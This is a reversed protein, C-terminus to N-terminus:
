LREILNIRGVDMLIGDTYVMGSIVDTDYQCPMIVDDRFTFGENVDARLAPYISMNGSNLLDASLMYIKSHNTFRIFCGKPILGSNGIVAVTTSGKSGVATPSAKSTRKAIVGSNQPMLVTVTESHGKTVLNVFLDNADRSLPEVSTEIEWRQAARRVTARKLSLTDSGFSPRNNRVTLPATFRAILMGDETIGYM